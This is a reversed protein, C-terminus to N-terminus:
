FGITQSVTFCSDPVPLLNVVHKKPSHPVPFDVTRVSIELIYAFFYLEADYSNLACHDPVDVVVFTLTNLASLIVSMSEGPM